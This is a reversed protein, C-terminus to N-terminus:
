LNDNHDTKLAKKFQRWNDIELWKTHRLSCYQKLFFAVCKPATVSDAKFIKDM